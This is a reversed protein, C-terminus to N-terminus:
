SGGACNNCPDKKGANLADQLTGSKINKSKSLSPCNSDFHYSKGGSTWYAARSLDGTIENTTSDQGWTSSSSKNSSSNGPNGGSPKVTQAPVSEPTVIQETNPVSAPKSTNAPPATSPAPTSSSPAAPAEPEEEPAPAPAEPEPSELPKGTDLDIVLSDLLEGSFLAKADREENKVYKYTDVFLCNSSVSIRTTTNLSTNWVAHIEEDSSFMTRYYEIAFESPPVNSRTGSRRWLGTVDELVSDYFHLKVGNSLTYEGTQLPGADEEGPEETPEQGSEDDSLPRERSPAEEETELPKADEPPPTKSDSTDMMMAGGFFLVVSALIGILPPKKSDYRIFSVILWVLCIPVGLMGIAGLIAGM